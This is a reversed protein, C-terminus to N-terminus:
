FIEKTSTAVLTPTVGELLPALVIKKGKISLSYTNKQGDYIAYCNYYWFRGPSMHCADIFVVDCWINDFYKKRTSFSVLFWRNVIIEIGKNM